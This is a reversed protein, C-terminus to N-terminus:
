NKRLFVTRENKDVTFGDSTFTMVKLPFVQRDPIKELTQVIDKASTVKQHNIETIIQGPRIGNREAISGKEVSEVVVGQFSSDLDMERRLQSPIPVVTFGLPIDKPGAEPQEIGLDRNPNSLKRRDTLTVMKDFRKGRTDVMSLQISEGPAKQSIKAILDGSNEINKGDIALIVQDSELGAKEAPLGRTVGTVLAGGDVKFYEKAEPSLNGVTVGLAGRRVEGHEKLQMVSPRFLETPIAFGYTEGRTVIMTNIAVVEGQTNVLPGGSNGFTIDADTQIYTALDLSNNRLNRGIGSVIGSTVSFGLQLPYGIALVRDGIRLKSSDGFQLHKFNRGEIKLLAIDLNEDTGILTASHENEGNTFVTINDADEVVHRNTVIFGDASILFGSGAGETERDGRQPSNFFDFPNPRRVNQVTTTTRINVIADQINEVLDAYGESQALAPALSAATLVFMWLIKM